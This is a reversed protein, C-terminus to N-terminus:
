IRRSKTRSVRRNEDTSDDIVHIEFKDKPYDFAAVYDILRGIVYYENYIPLQVTVFPLDDDTSNVKTPEQFPNKKRFNRYSRLVSLQMVCFLTIYTLAIGYVGLILYAIM